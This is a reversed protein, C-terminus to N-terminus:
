ALNLLWPFSKAHVALTKWSFECLICFHTVAFQRKAHLSPGRGGGWEDAGVVPLLAVATQPSHLQLATLRHCTFCKYHSCVALSVLLTSDETRDPSCHTVPFLPHSPVVHNVGLGRTALGPLMALQLQLECNAVANAVAILLRSCIAHLCVAFTVQGRACHCM